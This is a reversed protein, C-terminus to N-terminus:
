FLVPQNDQTKEQKDYFIKVQGFVGDYGPDVFVSRERVKKIANEFMEGGFKRIRDYPEKTLIKFETAFTNTLVEYQKLAKTPSNDNLELLIELLSILSIFPKRKKNKDYVFTLGDSNKQYILDSKKIQFESLKLVRNEVGITLPRACVPCIEGKQLVESPSYKVNCTRHGSWHYKGEEPFFESTFAIEMNSNAEQKIASVIDNFSFKENVLEGRKARQAELPSRTLSNNKFSFVTTERGLKPGSHADSFSLISLNELEKVQWNMIPDSSLGTEVGYIYKSMDGFCEQLSDFGSKSGFIGFWPTWVHAPIFLFNKDIELAIKLLDICSIGVIPRGDSMLKAGRKLLEKYFLNALKLNPAFILSHIRRVAGNQSYISSIEVSLLFKVKKGTLSQSDKLEYIGPSTEILQAEIEKFWLPHLWDSTSLLDIGKKQAWYEMEFLDLKKSTARSFKSHTHLDSIIQM